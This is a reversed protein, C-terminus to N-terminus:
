RPPGVELLFTRHPCHPDLKVISQEAIGESDCPRVWVRQLRVGYRAIVEKLMDESTAKAPWFGFGLCGETM